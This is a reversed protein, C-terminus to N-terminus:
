PAGEQLEYWSDFDMDDVAVEVGWAEPLPYGAGLHALERQMYDVSTNNDPEAYESTVTQTMLPAGPTLLFGALAPEGTLTLVRLQIAETKRLTGLKAAYALLGDAAADGILVQQHAYALSKM